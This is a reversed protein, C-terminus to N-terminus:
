ANGESESLIPTELATAAERTAAVAVKVPYPVLTLWDTVTNDVGKIGALINTAARNFFEGRAEHVNNTLGQGSGKTQNNLLDTDYGGAMIARQCQLEVIVQHKGYVVPVIIPADLDLDSMGLDELTPLKQEDAM